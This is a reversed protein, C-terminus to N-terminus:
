VHARGIEGFGWFGQFFFFLLQKYYYKKDSRIKHYIKGNQEYIKVIKGSKEQKKSTFSVLMGENLLTEQTM